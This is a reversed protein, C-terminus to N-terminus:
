KMALVTKDEATLQGILNDMEGKVINASESYYRDALTETPQVIPRTLSEEYQAQSSTM